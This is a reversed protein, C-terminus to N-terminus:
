VQTHAKPPVAIRMKMGSSCSRAIMRGDLLSWSFTWPDVNLGMLAHPGQSIEQGLVTGLNLQQVGQTQQAPHFLFLAQVRIAASM